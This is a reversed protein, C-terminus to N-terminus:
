GASTALISPETTRGGSNTATVRVQMFQGIDAATLVYTSGSAGALSTCVM